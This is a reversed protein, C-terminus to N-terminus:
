ALSVPLKVTKEGKKSKSRSSSKLLAKPVAIYEDEETNMEIAVTESAMMEPVATEPQAEVGASSQLV